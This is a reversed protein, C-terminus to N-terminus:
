DDSILRRRYLRIFPGLCLSFPVSKNEICAKFFLDTGKEMLFLDTGKELVQVGEEISTVAELLRVCNSPVQAIASLVSCVYLEYRQADEQGPSVEAVANYVQGAVPHVGGDVYYFKLEM